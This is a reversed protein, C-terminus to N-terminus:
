KENKKNVHKKIQKIYDPAYHLHLNGGKTWVGETYPTKSFLAWKGM